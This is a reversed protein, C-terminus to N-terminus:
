ELFPTAKNIADQLGDQLPRDKLIKDLRALDAYTAAM